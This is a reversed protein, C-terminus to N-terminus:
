GAAAPRCLLPSLPAAIPGEDRNAGREAMAGAVSHRKPVGFLRKFASKRYLPATQKKQEDRKRRVFATPDDAGATRARHLRQPRGRQNRRSQPISAALKFASCLLDQEGKKRAQELKAKQTEADLGRQRLREIQKLARYYSRETAEIRRQVQALAPSRSYAEALDSAADPGTLERQWLQAEIRRLRRLKWDAAVMEDALFVEVPSEPAWQRRYDETLAELEAADEGPIVQSQAHIGTKLANFRTAAKGEPSRPGTSKQSNQRNADIQAPSSM